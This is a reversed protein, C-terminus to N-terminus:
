NILVLGGKVTMIADAKHTALLGQTNLALTAKVDIQLSEISISTPTMHIKSMGVKLTISQMAEIEIKGLSAKTTINGMKVLTDMNGMKVTLSENGQTVTATRDLKTTETHKGDVVETRHRKVTETRDNKILLTMDKEAQINIEESGKKDEFRLENFNAAGGGKSSKTKIGSQTKNAPLAYIPKQEANYVSGIAVPRDPDGDVFAILVEDGIRPLTWSGGWKGSFSQAVRVWCSSTDDRKGARDWLFHVKVRGYEDCHIEEGAPGTVIASHVGLMPPRPRPAVPRWPRDAAILVLANSYGSTGGGALHTEDFAEHTASTVLWTVAQTADLGPKVKLRGGAFIGPDNGSAMARDAGAEFGEMGLKSLDGEPRVGQGSPWRFVEFSAANPTGLITGAQKKLLSSPKLGDYDEAVVKGPQLASVPRWQTLAGHMDPDRRVVQPDGPVLPYDANAGCVVLTHDSKQHEFFYGCGMEDMLRQVFDLDSENFQVCYTRNQTPVSGGWRVPAVDHEGFITSAIDKGSKEQFIRCDGTRSLQWLRPVAEIRYAALGRGYPGLRSFSRVIGHFYRAETHGVKVSCTIAKGILASAELDLKDTIVEAALAFPQGIEERVSLRRLTLANPGLPSTIELLREHQTLNM